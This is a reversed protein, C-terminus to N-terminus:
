AQKKLFTAEFEKFNEVKQLRKEMEDIKDLKGRVLGWLFNSLFTIVGLSLINSGLALWNNTMSNNLLDIGQM